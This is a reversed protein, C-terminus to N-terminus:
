KEVNLRLGRSLLVSSMTTLVTIILLGFFHAPTELRGGFVYAKNGMYVTYFDLVLCLVWAAKLTLSILDDREFTWISHTSILFGLIVISAVGAFVLQSVFVGHLGVVDFIQVIGVLTTFGGWLAGLGIIFIPFKSAQKPTTEVSHRTEIRLIFAARVSDLADILKTVPGPFENLEAIREEIFRERENIPALKAAQRVLWHILRDWRYLVEITLFAAIIGLLVNVFYEM